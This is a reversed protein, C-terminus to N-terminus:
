KVTDRTYEVVENTLGPYPYFMTKSVCVSAGFTVAASLLVAIIIVAKKRKSPRYLINVFRQKVVLFGLANINGSASKKYAASLELLHLMAAAYQRVSAQPGMSSLAQQDCDMECSYAFEGKVIWVLPNFWHLSSVVDFVRQYLHHKRKIHMLEHCLIMETESDSLQGIIDARLVIVPQFFNVVCAPEALPGYRLQPQKVFGLRAACKDYIIRVNGKTSVPYKGVARYALLGRLLYYLMLVVAGGLWIVAAARYGKIWSAPEPSLLKAGPFVFPLLFVLANLVGTWLPIATKFVKHLFLNAMSYLSGTITLFIIIYFMSGLIRM